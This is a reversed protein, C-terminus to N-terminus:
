RFSWNSAAQARVLMAEPWELWVRATTSCPATGENTRSRLQPTGSTTSCATQASPLMAPSPGSRRSITRSAPIIAGIFARVSGRLLGLIGNKCFIEHVMDFKHRFLTVQQIKVVITIKLIWRRFGLVDILKQRCKNAHELKFVLLNTSVSAPCKRVNGVTWVFSNLHDEIYTDKTCDLAAFRGQM